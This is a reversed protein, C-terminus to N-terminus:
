RRRERQPRELRCATCETSSPEDMLVFHHARASCRWVVVQGVVQGGRWALHIDKVIHTLYANRGTSRGYPHRSHALTIRHGNTTYPPTLSWRTSGAYALARRAPLEADRALTYQYQQASGQALWSECQSM